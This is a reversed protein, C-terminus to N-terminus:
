NFARWCVLAFLSISGLLALEGPDMVFHPATGETLADSNEKFKRAAVDLDQLLKEAARRVGDTRRAADGPGAFRGQPDITANRLERAFASLTQDEAVRFSILYPLQSAQIWLTPDNVPLSNIVDVERYKQLASLSGPLPQQLSPPKNPIFSMYYNQLYNIANHQPSAIHICMTIANTLEDLTRISPFTPMQGGTPSQMENCWASVCTDKAVDADGTYFTGLMSSVFDFLIPWLIAMNKGYAYNHFRRDSKDNLSSLPFGRTILSTPAYNGTWNFNRYSSLLYDYTQRETFGNIKSILQPVLTDRAAANLSLTKFWHPELIKYVIHDSPFSRYAAVASAEEVFHCDNLHLTLEHHTWDAVLSCMKAYRWPWDNHENDKPDKPNIRKNFITVSKEMSVKYDLVIALPHLDGDANLHFLTVSACGFRKGNDFKLTADPSAGAWEHFFSCDQIFFSNSNFRELLSHMEKNGQDFVANKFRDLWIQSALAISSPNPGTFYQQAFVADSYWDKRYGISPETGVNKQEKNLAIMREELMAMTTGNYPDGSLLNSIEPPIKPLLSVSVDVFRRLNFIKLLGVRNDLPIWKLHPPYSSTSGPLAWQYLARQTEFRRPIFPKEAEFGQALKATAENIEAPTAVIIGPVKPQNKNLRRIPRRIINPRKEKTSNAMKPNEPSRATPENARTAGNTGNAVNMGQSASM